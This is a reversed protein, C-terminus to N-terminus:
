PTHRHRGVPVVKGCCPNPVVAFDDDRFQVTQMPSRHCLPMGSLFGVADDDRKGVFAQPMSGCRGVVVMQPVGGVGPASNDDIVARLVEIRERATLAGENACRELHQKAGLAGSGLCITEHTFEPEIVECKGAKLEIVRIMPQHTRKCYGVYLLDAYKGWEAPFSKIAPGLHRALAKVRSLPSDSDAIAETPGIAAIFQHIATLALLSKGTYAVHDSSPWVRFLKTAHDWQQGPKGAIETGTSLRSDAAVSVSQDSGGGELWALVLTM